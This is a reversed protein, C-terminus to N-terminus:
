EQPKKREKTEINWITLLHFSVLNRRKTTFQGDKYSKGWLYASQFGKYLPPFM